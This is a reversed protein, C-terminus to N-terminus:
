QSKCFNKFSEDCAPYIKSGVFNAFNEVTHLEEDNILSICCGRTGFRGARGLRHLYSESSFPLDFNIVVNIGKVDIGRTTIDTSVLIQCRNRSFNHYVMNREDQSMQSHIFYCSFGTETIKKALMQASIIGNCYIICQNIDISVLISKLCPLKTNKRIKVYFQSVNKLTYENSVKILKPSNMNMDVFSKISTPFTASFLCIQKKKPLLNILSFISEYFVSDLLKDAEDFIIIPNDEIKCVNKQLVDLIRGPTGILVHIGNSIRIIDDTLDSGGVLPMSKVGTDKCFKKVTKAIQLALERIPVLIIAQLSNNKSDIKELIPIVFSLSKGTGNKARVLVDLGKLISPISQHQVPSPFEFGHEQMAKITNDSINLDTWKTSRYKLLEDSIVCESNVGLRRSEPEEYPSATPSVDEARAASSNSLSVNKFIKIVKQAKKESMTKDQERGEDKITDLESNGIKARNSINENRRVGKKEIFPKHDVMSSSSNTIESFEKTENKNIKIKTKGICDDFKNSQRKFDEFHKNSNVAFMEEQNKNAAENDPSRNRSKNNM